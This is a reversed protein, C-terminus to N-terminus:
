GGKAKISNNAQKGLRDEDMRKAKAGKIKEALAKLDAPKEILDMAGLKKAEIGMSVTAHGTLLIVPVSPKKMKFARLAEFGDMEPMILDLVIADYSHTEVKELADWASTTTSVDIGLMRMREAM